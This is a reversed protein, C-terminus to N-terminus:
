KKVPHGRFNRTPAFEGLKHGVMNETVYVPIFKNGNHVAFTHGVFDPIIMSRRSWTKIVAKKNKENLEQVKKELKFSVYPGKKISRAM